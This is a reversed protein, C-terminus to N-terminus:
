EERYLLIENNKFIQEMMFFIKSWSEESYFNKEYHMAIPARCKRGLSYFCNELFEYKTLDDSLIDEYSFLNAIIKKDKPLIIYQISGLLNKPNNESECYKIYEEYVKPYKNMLIKSNNKDINGKCSVQQAIIQEKADLINGKVITIM